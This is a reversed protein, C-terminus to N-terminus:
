YTQGKDSLIPFDQQYHYPNQHETLEKIRIKRIHKDILFCACNLRAALSFVQGNHAVTSCGRFVGSM